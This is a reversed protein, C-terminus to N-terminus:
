AQLMERAMVYLVDKYGKLFLTNIWTSSGNAYRGQSDVLGDSKKITMREDKWVAYGTAAYIKGYLEHYGEPQRKTATTVMTRVEEFTLEKAREVASELLESEKGVFHKERNEQTLALIGQTQSAITNVESRMSTLQGEVRKIYENSESVYTYAEKLAEYLGNMVQMMMAQTQDSVDFRENIVAIVGTDEQKANFFEEFKRVM